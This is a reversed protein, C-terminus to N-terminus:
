DEYFEKLDDPADSEFEDLDDYREANFKEMRNKMRLVYRMYFLVQEDKRGM